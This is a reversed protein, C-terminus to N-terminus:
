GIILSPSYFDFFVGLKSGDTRFPCSGDDIEVLVGVVVHGVSSEIRLIFYLVDHSIGGFSVDCYHGFYIHRAVGRGCQRCIGFQAACSARVFHAGIPATEVSCETYTLLACECKYFLHEILHHREEGRFVYM